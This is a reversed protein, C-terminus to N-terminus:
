WTRGGQAKQDLHVVRIEPFGLALQEAIALMSDTSADDAITVGYDFLRDGSLRYMNKVGEEEENYVPITVNVLM